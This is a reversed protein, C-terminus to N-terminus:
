AAASPRAGIWGAVAAALGVAVAVAVAVAPGAPAGHRLAVRAAVPAALASAAVFPPFVQRLITLLTAMEPFALQLEPHPRPAGVLVSLAAGAVPAVVVAVLMAAGVAVVEPSPDLAVGTALAVLGVGLMAVCPVVLDGLLLRGPPQPAGSTVGPHDVAQAMPEVADLAAVFLAAGGVVVLPLTGRWSGVAAAGAVAGLVVVRTARGAPWRLLGHWGRRWSARGLPGADPLRWWPRSRSREQALQRHLVVVARLDQITAAFRLQGVLGSRREAAEIGFGDARLLGVIPVAAAVVVGVPVLVGVGLPWVALAGLMTAPSTTTGAVLDVVSWAVLVAAAAWAGRVRLRRTSSVLAAGWVTAAGLLGFAAGCAIWAAVDAPRAASLRRAALNGAVGGALMGGVAVARLQRYAASRVVVGRDVPALLVHAVDPAELALPGGRVGSRLALAAAVAVALGLWAPGHRHVSAATAAGAPDDGVATSAAYLAALSVLGGAYVKYLLDIWDIHGVRRIRRARRLDHLVARTAVAGLPAAAPPCPPIPPNPPIEPVM